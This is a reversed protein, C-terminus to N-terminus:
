PRSVLDSAVEKILDDFFRVSEGEHTILRVNPFYNAGWRDGGKRGASGPTGFIPACVFLLLLVPTWCRLCHRRIM